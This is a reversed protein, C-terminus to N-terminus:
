IESEFKCYKNKWINIAALLEADRIINKTDKKRGNLVANVYSKGVKNKIAIEKQAGFPLNNIIDNRVKRPKWDM